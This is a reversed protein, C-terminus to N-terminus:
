DYGLPFLEELTTPKRLVEQDFCFDLLMQLGKRNAELGYPLPDGEVIGAGGIHAHPDKRLAEAKSKKLAEYLAPAVWPHEKLVSDKVVVMHDLPFVGYQQYFAKAAADPDPYFSKIHDGADRPRASLFGAVEGKDLMENLNAGVQRSVNSPTDAHYEAVHEEDNLVWNVKRWDLGHEMKLFGRIWVSPTVTWARSAVTKGEWDKPSKVGTNTNYIANQHQGHGLVIAPLATFPKGYERAVFYAVIAMECFDYDLTRCMKRFAATTPTVDLFNFEIGDPKVSGDKLADYVTHGGIATTLTLTGTSTTV